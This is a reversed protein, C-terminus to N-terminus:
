TKKNLSLSLEPTTVTWDTDSERFEGPATQPPQAAHNWLWQRVQDIAYYLANYETETAAGAQVKEQLGALRATKEEDLNAPVTIEQLREVHFAMLDVRAEFDTQGSVCCLSLLAPILM